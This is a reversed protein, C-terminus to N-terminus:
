HMEEILDVFSRIRPARDQIESKTWQHGFFNIHLHCAADFGDELAPSDTEEGLESVIAYLQEISDHEWGRTEAISALAGAVAEWLKESAQLLDGTELDIMAQDFPSKSSTRSREATTM